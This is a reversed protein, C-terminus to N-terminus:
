LYQKTETFKYNIEMKNGFSDIIEDHNDDFGKRDSFWKRSLILGFKRQSLQRLLYNKEDTKIRILNRIADNKNRFENTIDDDVKDMINKMLTESPTLSKHEKIKKEVDSIKPISSFGKFDSKFTLAMYSDGSKVTETKPAYGRSTIGLSNLWEIIEPTYKCCEDSSETTLLTKIYKLYFKDELLKEALETMESCKISKV